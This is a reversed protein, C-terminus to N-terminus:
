NNLNNAFTIMSQVGALYRHNFKEKTVPHKFDPEGINLFYEALMAFIQSQNIYIVERGGLILDLQQLKERLNMDPQSDEAREAFYVEGERCVTFGATEYHQILAETTWRGAHFCAMQHRTDAKLQLRMYCGSLIKNQMKGDTRLIPIPFAIDALEARSIKSTSGKLGIQITGKEPHGPLVGDEWVKQASFLGKAAVEEIKIFKEAELVLNCIRYKKRFNKIDRRFILFYLLVTIGGIVAAWVINSLFAMIVAILLGAAYIAYGTRARNRLIELNNIENEAKYM